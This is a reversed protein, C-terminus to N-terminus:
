SLIFYHLTNSKGSKEGDDNDVCEQSSYTGLIMNGEITRPQPLISATGNRITTIYPLRSWSNIPGHDGSERVCNAFLNGQIHDGGGFDDNLNLAARPLNYAANGRLVTKAAIAQFLLSSQKQWVGLDHASNGVIVTSLPVDLGRGDPGHPHPGAPLRRTGAENLLASTRGWLVIASGGIYEFDNDKILIDRNHGLLEIALGDLRTFLCGEVTSSHVGDMTVAASYQLAWDGGSPTGHPDLFTEKTDRLVLGRLTVGVVPHMASGTLNFLTKHKTAVFVASPLPLATTGNNIFLLKGAPEDYFFEAKADLEERVGEVWWEANSNFGEAGQFGGRTFNLGASSSQFAYQVTFWHAPRWAHLVGSGGGTQPQAYPAHPLLQLSGLGSPHMHQGAARPGGGVSCSYGYEPVLDGLCPGGHGIIFYGQDGAGTMSPPVGPVTPDIASTNM